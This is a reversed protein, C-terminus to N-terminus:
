QQRRRWGGSLSLETASMKDHMASTLMDDLLIAARLPSPLSKRQKRWDWHVAVPYSKTRVCGDLNAL